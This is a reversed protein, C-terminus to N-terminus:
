AQAATKMDVASPPPSVLTALQAAFISAIAQSSEDKESGGKMEASLVGICGDGTLLPVVLAGNVSRMESSRYSAAAANNADRHISGMRTIVQDTYGFSMAPRLATASSDAVWVILGSADLLNATRELLFPLEKSDTVCALDTCVRAANALNPNAPKFEVVAKPPPAVVREPMYAPQEIADYERSIVALLLMLLMVGGAAGGLIILQQRRDVTMAFQRARLEETLAADIQNRATAAAEIGDSFILDAAILVNGGKVFGQARADLKQFNDIAASAPEFAQQAAASSLNGSFESMQQQVVPVLKTVRSMWFDEGQGRAVYAVQATRMEAISAALERAQDRLLDAGARREAITSDNQKLLYGAAAIIAIAICVSIARVLRTAM